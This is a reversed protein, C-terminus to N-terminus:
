LFLIITHIFAMSLVIKILRTRLDSADFAIIICIVCTMIAKLVSKRKAKAVDQQEITLSVFKKQAETSNQPSKDLLRIAGGAGPTAISQSLLISIAIVMRLIIKNM